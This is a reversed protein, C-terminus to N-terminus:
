KHTKNLFNILYGHFTRGDAKAKKAIKQFLEIPLKLTKLKKDEAM